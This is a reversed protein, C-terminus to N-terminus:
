DYRGPSQIDYIQEQLDEKDKELQKIRDILEVLVTNLLFLNPGVGGQLQEVLKQRIDKLVDDREPKYTKYDPERYPHVEHRCVKCWCSCEDVDCRTQHDGCHIFNTKPDNKM